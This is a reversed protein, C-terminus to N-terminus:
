CSRGCALPSLSGRLPAGAGHGGAEEEDVGEDNQDEQYEDFDIHHEECYKREELEHRLQSLVDEFPSIHRCISGGEAFEPYVDCFKRNFYMVLEDTVGKMGEARAKEVIKRSMFFDEAMIKANEEEEDDGDVKFETDFFQKLEERTALGEEVVIPVSFDGSGEGTDLPHDWVQYDGRDRQTTGEDPPRAKLDTDMPAGDGDCDREAALTLPEDATHLM